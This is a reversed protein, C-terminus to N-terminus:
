IDCHLSSVLAVKMSNMIMQRHDLRAAGLAGAARSHDGAVDSWASCRVPETPTATGNAVTQSLSIAALLHARPSRLQHRRALETLLLILLLSAYVASSETSSL